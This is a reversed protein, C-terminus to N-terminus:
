VTTPAEFPVGANDAGDFRSQGDKSIVVLDPALRVEYLPDDGSVGVLRGLLVGRDDRDTIYITKTASM